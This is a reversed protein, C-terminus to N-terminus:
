MKQEAPCVQWRGEFDKMFSSAVLRFVLLGNLQEETVDLLVDFTGSFTL